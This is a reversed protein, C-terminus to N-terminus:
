IYLIIFLIQTLFIYIKLLITIIPFNEYFQVFLSKSSVYFEIDSNVLDMKQTNNKRFYLSIIKKTFFCSFFTM